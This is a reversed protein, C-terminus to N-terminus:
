TPSGAVRLAAPILNDSGRIPRDLRNRRRPKSPVNELGAVTPAPTPGHVQRRLDSGCRYWAQPARWSHASRGLPSKGPKDRPDQRVELSVKPRGAGRRSKWRWFLRFGARHWRLVTEPEVITFADLIRPAIRYLCIFVLRDFTSLVPRKPARRHMVNLQHRLALNEARLSARSRLLGVLMWRILNLLDRMRSEHGSEREPGLPRSKRCRCPRRSSSRM